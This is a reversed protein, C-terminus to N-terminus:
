ECSLPSVSNRWTTAVTVAAPFVVTKVGAAPLRTRSRQIYARFSGEAVVGGNIRTNKPASSFNLTYASLLRCSTVPGTFPAKIMLKLVVADTATVAM